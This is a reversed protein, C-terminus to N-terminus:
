LVAELLDFINPPLLSQPSSYFSVLLLVNGIEKM